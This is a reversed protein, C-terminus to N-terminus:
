LSSERWGDRMGRWYSKLLHFRGRLVFGACVRLASGCRFLFVALRQRGQAHARFFIVSGRAMHFTRFASGAGASGSGKHWMQALPVTILRYGLRQFRLSYDLDEYYFFFREDFFGVKRLAPASLLMACGLVYDVELPTQWQGKDMQGRAGGRMEMLLPHRRFGVSWIREPDDLFYIMPAAVGVEPQMAAVLHTLMSPAVVVDNNILLVYDAGQDLAHQLGPNVGAAFGLNRPHILLEVDPHKERVLAVTQDTSQNDVILVKFNPYTMKGLSDLARLTDKYHNFTPIVVYVFTSMINLDRSPQGWSV